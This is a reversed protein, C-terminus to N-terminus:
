ACCNCFTDRNFTMELCNNEGHFQVNEMFAKILCVGRGGLESCESMMVSEPNFGGGEDKVTITCIDDHEEINITVTCDPKNQNGHVVANVLAEELCLRINFTHDANCWKHEALVDLAESLTEAIADTTSKLEKKYVTKMMRSWKTTTLAYFVSYIIGYVPGCQFSFKASNEYFPAVM